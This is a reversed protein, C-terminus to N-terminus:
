VPRWNEGDAWVDLNIPFAPYPRADWAYVYIRDRDVMRDSYVNSIPNADPFFGESTHDFTEVFARLFRNQVLDDRTARSYYPVATESSKPDVFVNPQNLGKDIAPCGVEMFWFPKSEPVWATPTRSEVGGPRDTLKKGGARPRAVIRACRTAVMEPTGGIHRDLLRFTVPRM